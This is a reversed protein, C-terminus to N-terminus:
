FGHPIVVFRGQDELPLSSWDMPHVVCTLTFIGPSYSSFFFPVRREKLISWVSSLQGSAAACSLFDHGDRNKQLWDVSDEPNLSLRNLFINLLQTITTSCPFAAGAASSPRSGGVPPPISFILHLPTNGFRNTRRFDLPLPSKLLAAVGDCFTTLLWQHLIPEPHAPHLAFIDAGARVCSEVEMLGVVSSRCLAVLNETATSQERECKMLMKRLAKAPLSHPSEAECRQVWLQRLSPPITRCLPHFFHLFDELQRTDSGPPNHGTSRVISASNMRNAMEECQNVAPSEDLYPKLYSLTMLEDTDPRKEPNVELLAQLLVKVDLSFYRDKPLPTYEGQQIKHEREEESSGQFAPQLTLMEYLICGMAWIDAKNSYSNGKQLEPSMYIPTGCVTKRMEGYHELPRSLGFDAIKLEESTTLLINLPKLDRHMIKHEHLYHVAKLIQTFYRLVQEESFYTETRRGNRIKSELDGGGAYEMVINLVEGDFFHEQYAVVHPHSLRSLSKVENKAMEIVQATARSLDIAKLALKKGDSKRTVVYVKGFSGQGLMEGMEFKSLWKETDKNNAKTMEGLFFLLYYAIM